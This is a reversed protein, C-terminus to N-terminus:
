SLKSLLKELYINVYKLSKTKENASYLFFIIDYAKLKKQIQKKFKKPVKKDMIVAIKKTNPCLIKIRKYLTNILNEGILISYKFNPNKLKIEQVKM